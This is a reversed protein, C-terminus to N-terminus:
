GITKVKVPVLIIMCDMSCPEASSLRPTRSTVQWVLVASISVTNRSLRAQQQTMQAVGIVSLAGGHTAAVNETFSTNYVVLNGGGSMYVAGGREYAHNKIFHSDSIHCQTDCRRLSANAPEVDDTCAVMLAGGNGGKNNDFRSGLITLNSGFFAVGSANNAHFQTDVVRLTSAYDAYVISRRATNATINCAELLVHAGAGIRIAAGDIGSNGDIHVNRLVVMDKTGSGRSEVSFGKIVIASGNCGSIRINELLV